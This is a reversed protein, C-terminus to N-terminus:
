FWNPLIHKLLVWFLRDVLRATTLFQVVGRVACLIVVLYFLVTLFM